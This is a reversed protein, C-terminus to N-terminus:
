LQTGLVAAERAHTDEGLAGSVVAFAQHVELLASENRALRDSGHEQGVRVLVVVAGTGAAVAGVHGENPAYELEVVAHLSRYEVGVRGVVLLLGVGVEKGLVDPVVHGLLHLQGSGLM